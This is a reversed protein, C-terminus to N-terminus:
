LNSQSLCAAYEGKYDPRGQEGQTAKYLKLMECYLMQEKIEISEDTKDFICLAFALVFVAFALYILGKNRLSM